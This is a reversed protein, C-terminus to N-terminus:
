QVTGKHLEYIANKNTENWNHYGQHLNQNNIKKQLTQIGDPHNLKHPLPNPQQDLKM